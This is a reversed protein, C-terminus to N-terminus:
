EPFAPQGSTSGLFSLSQAGRLSLYAEAAEPDRMSSLNRHLAVFAGQAADELAERRGLMVVVLRVLAAYHRRFLVEVLEVRASEM